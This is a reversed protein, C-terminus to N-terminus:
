EVTISGKMTPHFECFYSYTGAEEVTISGSADQDLSGTDFSDDDATATHAASDTNTFTVESGASVTAESPDYNFDAITVESTSGGGGSTAAEDDSSEDDGGCGAAILASAALTALGITRSRTTM